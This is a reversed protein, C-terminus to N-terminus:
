AIMHFGENLENWIQESTQSDIFEQMPMRRLPQGNVARITIMKVPEAALAAPQLQDPPQSTISDAM